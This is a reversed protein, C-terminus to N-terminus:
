CRQEHQWIDPGMLGGLLATSDVSIKSRQMMNSLQSNLDDEIEIGNDVILKKIMPEAQGTVESLLKIVDDTLMGMKSLQEAQWMLVNDKNVDKYNSDKLYFIIRNFIQKELNSYLSTIDDASNQMYNENIM